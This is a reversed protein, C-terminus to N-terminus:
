HCVIELSRPSYIGITIQEFLINAFSSYQHVEKIGREPCYQAESYELKRPLLGMLYYNQKLLITERNTEKTKAQKAAIPAVEVRAHQCWVIQTLLLIIIGYYIM